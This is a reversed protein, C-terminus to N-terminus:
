YTARGAGGLARLDHALAEPTLQDAAYGVRQAGTGDVVVTSATHTFGAGQPQIGYARWVPALEASTGTLYRMRGRMRQAALFARVHAPTDAQPDVSIALVPVDRGLQDLAGRIQQATLPCTDPCTSYMFTVIVDRGRYGRMTALRGAQDHLRFDAARAGPPRLAGDLGTTRGSAGRDGRGLAVVGALLALACATVIALTLRLRAPVLVPYSPASPGAGRDAV